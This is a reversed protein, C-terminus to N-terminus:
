NFGKRVVPTLKIPSLHAKFAPLRQIDTSVCRKLWRLGLQFVSLERATGPDIIRRASEGELLVQEGLEHCWLKAIALALLLRELREAHWLRTEAMNFGGSKEDRFGQETDMREGYERLRTGCAPRDSIMALLEPKHKADGTTWTVSLNAYLKVEQTLGVEQFYRRQDPQVGLEDIRCTWGTALTVGTNHAVRIDYNWGLKLCLQAWDCDRFGRDALFCVHNVHTQLFHAARTLMAELKEVTPLGTGPLVVWVLPIARQGHALSLRFIQWRDGWVLVGDLIVYVTEAQWNQLLQDLIPRYFHWVEVQRNRLWRRITTIRAEATTEGPIHNAIESLVVSNSQLMGVIIWAWNELEAVHTVSVLERLTGILRTYLEQSSSM